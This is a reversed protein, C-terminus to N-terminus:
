TGELIEPLAALFEDWTMFVYDAQTHNGGDGHDGCFLAATAAARKAGAIDTDELDGIHLLDAPAVHLQRAATEFMPRQPKSVGVEDSFTMAEFFPSFGYRDMLARLSRGPSIGTDSILGVPRHQAAACVADLAREIPEPAHHLIATAFVEALRDAADPAVEIGLTKAALRIADEPELTHQEQRHCRNFEAWVSKLVDATAAPSVGTAEAFAQIRLAQRPESNADRFLTCWFDFTIARIAM